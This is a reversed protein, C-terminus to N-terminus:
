KKRQERIEMTNLLPLIKDTGLISSFDGIFSEKKTALNLVEARSSGLM